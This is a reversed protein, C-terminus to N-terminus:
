KAASSWWKLLVNRTVYEFVHLHIPLDARILPAGKERHALVTPFEGCVGLDPLRVGVDPRRIPPSCMPAPFPIGEHLAKSRYGYITKLANTWDEDDWPFQFRGPPRQPPPDPRFAQVFSVFKMTIGLSGALHGAVTNLISKDSLGSLYTHLEPKSEKLREVPGRRSRQWENAATELASVMLLWTMSPESEAVWLAQQYMRASRVITIAKKQSADKLEEIRLLDQLNHQGSATSPIVYNRPTRFFPKGRGGRETPRGLPDGKFEFERSVSGAGLRIGLILSALAALEDQAYGGHYIKKHLEDYTRPERHAEYDCAVYRLVIATRVIGERFDETNFFAYPGFTAEEIVVADTFLPFELVPNTVPLDLDGPKFAKLNAISTPWRPPSTNNTAL